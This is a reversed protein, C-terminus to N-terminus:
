SAAAVCFLLPEADVAACAFLMVRGCVRVRTCVGPLQAGAQHRVARPGVRQRSAPEAGAAVHRQRAPQMSATANAAVGGAPHGPEAGALCPPLAVSARSCHTYTRSHAVRSLLQAAHSLSLANHSHHMCSCAGECCGGADSLLLAAAPGGSGRAKNDDQDWIANMLQAKLPVDKSVPRQVFWHSTRRHHRLLAVCVCVCVCV